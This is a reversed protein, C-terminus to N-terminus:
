SQIAEGNNAWMLVASSPEARVKKWGTSTLPLKPCQDVAWTVPPPVWYLCRSRMYISVQTLGSCIWMYFERGKELATLGSISRTSSCNTKFFHHGILSLGVRGRWALFGHLLMKELNLTEFVYADQYWLYISFYFCLHLCMLSVRHFKSTKRMAFLRKPKRSSKSQKQLATKM